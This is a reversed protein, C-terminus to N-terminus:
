SFFIFSVGSFFHIIAFTKGFASLFGSSSNLCGLIASPEGGMQSLDLIKGEIVFIKLVKLIYLKHVEDREAVM